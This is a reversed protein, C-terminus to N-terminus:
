LIRKKTFKYFSYLGLIVGSIFVFPIFFITACFADQCPASDLYFYVGANILAIIVTFIWFSKYSNNNEM